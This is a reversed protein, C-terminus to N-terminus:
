NKTTGEHFLGCRLQDYIEDAIQQALKDPSSYGANRLTDPFDPFVRLFGRRFFEKSSGRSQRGSYYSEIPEFYTSVITLVAFGAQHRFHYQESCLAKAHLLMWGKMQDEFVDIKDEIKGSALKTNDFNPSISLGPTSM